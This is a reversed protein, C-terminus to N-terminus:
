DKCLTEGTHIILSTPLNMRGKDMQTGRSDFISYLEDDDEALVSDVYEELDAEVLATQLRTFAKEVDEEYDPDLTVDLIGLLCHARDRPQLFSQRSRERANENGRPNAVRAQINHCFLMIDIYLEDGYDALSSGEYKDPHVEIMAKQLRSFATKVDEEYDLNMTVGLIGFLCYAQDQPRTTKRVIAWSM